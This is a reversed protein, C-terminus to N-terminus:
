WFIINAQKRVMTGQIRHKWQMYTSKKRKRFFINNALIKKQYLWIFITKKENRKLYINEIIKLLLKINKLNSFYKAEMRLGWKVIDEPVTNDSDIHSGKMQLYNLVRRYPFIKIWLISRCDRSMYLNIRKMTQIKKNWSVDKTLESSKELLKYRWIDGRTM